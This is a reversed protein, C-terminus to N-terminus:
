TKLVSARRKEWQCGVAILIKKYKIYTIEKGNSIRKYQKKKKEQNVPWNMEFPKIKKVENMKTAAEILSGRFRNQYSGIHISSDHHKKNNNSICM